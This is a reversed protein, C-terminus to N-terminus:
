SFEVGFPVALGVSIFLSMSAYNRLEVGFPYVPSCIFSIFQPMCFIGYNEGFHRVSIFLSMCVYNRLEEGFPSVSM